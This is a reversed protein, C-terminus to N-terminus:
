AGTLTRQVVAWIAEASAFNEPSIDDPDFDIDYSQELMAVLNMVDLSDLIGTEILDADPADFIEPNVATLIEIFEPSM